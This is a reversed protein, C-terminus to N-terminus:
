VSYKETQDTGRVRRVETECQELDRSLRDVRHQLTTAEYEAAMRRRIESAARRDSRKYTHLGKFGLGLTLGLAFAIVVLIFMEPDRRLLFFPLAGSRSLRLNCSLSFIVFFTGEIDGILVWFGWDPCLPSLM